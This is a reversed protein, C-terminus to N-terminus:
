TVKFSGHMSTRHVDCGYTYIGKKLTVTVTKRGTFSVGTITRNVGPGDSTSGPSDRM